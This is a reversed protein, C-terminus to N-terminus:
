IKEIRVVTDKLAYGGGIPDKRREIVSFPNVGNGTKTWWILSTDLDSSKFRKGKAVNGLADHGLGEALAVSQPHIRNTLIVRIEISGVSSVVRVKDGNSINLQAAVKKNIWLRNEHFIERVWKSNATGKAWLNTKYMTLVFEKESFDKHTEIPSYEPMPPAHQAKEEPLSIFVRQPQGQSHEMGTLKLNDGAPLKGIWFGKQKLLELDCEEINKVSKLALDKTNKYPLRDRENKGLRLSLELCFNGIEKAEGRPRFKDELLKGEEFEPSRLVQTTSLLSVVPQRLNFVARSDISPVIELGWGELYTAAPLVLDALRATETLHTDMVVLFPVKKDDQFHGSISNNDPESFAPNAMVAFYTNIKSNENFYQSLTRSNKKIEGIAKSSTHIEKPHLEFLRPVFIGGEKELNGTIWNLLFVCRINQSGNEHDSIGGGTIAITPKQSAFELALNKIAKAKVGSEKEAVEPTYKKLHSRLQSLSTNTNKRIFDNDVIGKEVIIHAMALAVIADTGPKVPFWDDSQAATESMRVDFTVLKAGRNIRADVLQRALPLFRDHNAYPNAGFNLILRSRGVDELIQPAQIMSDYAATQNSNKLCHRNIRANSGIADLFSVLLPDEEGIDFLWEDVRGNLILDKIRQSLILYVEDWTIRMWAGDGRSGVRRMPYLVREPDNVLNVGAVGKACIGGRNQPHAPNGLIQVLRTGNLYAIVGCGAPCQKCTTPIATLSKLSTRSVAKRAHDRSKSLAYRGTTLSATLAMSTKM